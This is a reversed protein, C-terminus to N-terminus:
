TGQSFGNLYANQEQTLIDIDVNMSRLKALAIEQDQERPIDYVIPSLSGKSEALKLVSM